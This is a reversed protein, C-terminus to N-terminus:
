ELGIRRVIAAYRSDTRVGDFLPDTKIARLGPEGTERAEVLRGFGRDPEALAFHVRALDVSRRRM